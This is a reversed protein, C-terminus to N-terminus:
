RPDLAGTSGNTVEMQEDGDSWNISLENTRETDRANEYM